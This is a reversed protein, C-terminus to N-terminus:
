RAAEQEDDSLITELVEDSSMNRNDAFVVGEVGAGARAELLPEDDGMTTSPRASFNTTIFLALAFIAVLAMAPVARWIVKLTMLWNEREARQGQEAKIRSRVRAYLFPSAAVREAEDENAASARVIERGIRDLREDTEGSKKKGIM